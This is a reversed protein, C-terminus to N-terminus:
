VAVDGGNGPFIDAGNNLVEAFMIGFSYVDCKETYNQTEHVEPAMYM